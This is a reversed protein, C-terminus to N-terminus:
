GGGPGATRDPWRSAVLCVALFWLGGVGVVPVGYEPFGFLQNVLLAGSAPALVCSAHVALVHSGRRIEPSPRCAWRIVQRGAFYLVLGAAFWLALGALVAAPAVFLVACLLVAGEGASPERLALTMGAVALLLFVGGPVILVNCCFLQFNSDDNDFSVVGLVRRPRFVMLGVTKVWRWLSPRQQWPSGVRMARSAAFHLGCEPCVGAGPTGELSYGCRDCHTGVGVGSAAAARRM